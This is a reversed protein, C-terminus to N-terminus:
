SSQLIKVRYESRKIEKNSISKSITWDQCALMEHDKSEKNNIKSALGWVPDDGKCDKM